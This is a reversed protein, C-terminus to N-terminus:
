GKQKRNWRRLMEYLKVPVVKRSGVRCASEGVVEKLFHVDHSVCVLAGKYGNLAQVFADITALDLHNTPEDLLLVHPSQLAINTVAFRVIQGGSLSRLPQRAIKGQLGFHGLQAYLDQEHLGPFREALYALASEERLRTEEVFHQEFHAVNVEPRIIVRGSTPVCLGAMVNLLTTKGGGNAGIFAMRAGMEVTLSIHQLVPGAGQDYAFSVDQLEILPGKTRLESPEPLKWVVAPDVHEEEVDGRVSLHYGARDRNLKFRHGKSNVELGWRGTLKRQKSAMQAQKKSDEAKAAKAKEAAITQQLRDYNRDLRERQRERMVKQEQVTEVYTSYDGVFYQLKEGQLLIIEEVTDDLFERDHSVTVITLESLGLLFQKLELIGPLDLHNTPEDLLLLRCNVFRAVALAVRIRWGGSLRRVPWHIQQESFGSAKLIQEARARRTEPEEMREYLANLEEQLYESAREREEPQLTLQQFYSELRALEKRAVLGRRGSSSAAQRQKREITEALCARRYELLVKEATGGSDTAIGEELIAAQKELWTQEADAALLYELTTLDLAAGKDEMQDVYFARLPPPLGPLWKHAIAQLLLSKGTGNRGVLGYHTGTSIHLDAGSLLERHGISMHIDRLDILKDSSSTDSPHMRTQQSTALFGQPAAQSVTQEQTCIVM